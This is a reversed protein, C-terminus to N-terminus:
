HIASYIPDSLCQTTIADAFQTRLKDLREKEKLRRSFERIETRVIKDQLFDVWRGFMSFTEFNNIRENEKALWEDIGREIEYSRRSRNDHQPVSEIAKWLKKEVASPTKPQSDKGTVSSDYQMMLKESFERFQQLNSHILQGQKVREQHKDSVNEKCLVSFVMLPAGFVVGYGAINFIARKVSSDRQIGSQLLQNPIFYPALIAVFLTSLIQTLTRIGQDIGDKLSDSVLGTAVFDAMSVDDMGLIMLIGLIFTTILLLYTPRATPPMKWGFSRCVTGFILAVLWLVGALFAPFLGVRIDDAFGLEGLFLFAGHSTTLRMLYALLAGVTVLGSLLFSLTLIWGFLHRSLMKVIDGMRRGHLAIAFIRRPQGCASKQEISLRNLEPGEQKGWNIGDKDSSIEEALLAGAYGGGSVTSLYDM